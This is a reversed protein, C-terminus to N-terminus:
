LKLLRFERSPFNLTFLGFCEGLKRKLRGSVQIAYPQPYITKGLTAPISQASIPSQSM